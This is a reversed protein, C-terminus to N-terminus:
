TTRSLASSLWKWVSYTFCKLVIAYMNFVEMNNIGAYPFTESDQIYPVIRSYLKVVAKVMNPM